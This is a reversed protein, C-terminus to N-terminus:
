ARLTEALKRAAQEPDAARTLAAGVAVRTIGAQRVEAANEHHIGGIAFAPLRIERHVEKLYELGAFEEFQKTQSPFTPGCGIHDAGDLVAQRAQQLSHTSVGVLKGPGIVRRAASVPLEEQGVHVGHAGSLLAIDPRDNVIFKAGYLQALRRLRVARKLLERDDMQKDRLQLAHVGGKLLQEALKAMAPLSEGGDILVYICVEPWTQLAEATLGAARELTYCRYRLPELQAALDPSFTKSYEELCRLAERARHFAALAVESIDGRTQERETSITTGVDGSVDRAAWRDSTKLSTQLAEALQHRLQKCQECLHSDELVFRLYDEATRLAESARNANADLIRLAATSPLSPM